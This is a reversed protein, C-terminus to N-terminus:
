PRDETTTLGRAALRREVSRRSAVVHRRMLWEALEGDREAIADVIRGHETLAGRARDSKMGFQCRYMRMLHYLDDCLIRVLRANGSGVVIRYHFDLDGEQQFYAQWQERAVERRHREMLTKLEAIAADSMREAALRAATGELAERIQYLELLGAGTLQVVRAGVRPRREVLGLAELRGLAERLPARSVAYETALGPESLKGGPPIRGEVIATRLAVFVREATSDSAAGQPRARGPERQTKPQITSMVITMLSLIGEDEPNQRPITSLVSWQM